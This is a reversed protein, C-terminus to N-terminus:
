QMPTRLARGAQATMGIEEGYYVFPVGYSLLITAALKAGAHRQGARYPARRITTASSGAGAGRRNPARLQEVTPLLGGAKGDCAEM